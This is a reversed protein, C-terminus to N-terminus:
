QSDIEPKPPTKRKAKRIPMTFEIRDTQRYNLCVRASYEIKSKPPPARHDVFVGESSLAVDYGTPCYIEFSTMSGTSAHPSILAAAHGCIWGMPMVLTSRKDFTAAGREDTDKVESGSSGTDFHEWGRYVRVGSVPAGSDDIARIISQPSVVRPFPCFLFVIPGLFM